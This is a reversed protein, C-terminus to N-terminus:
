RKIRAEQDFRVPWCFWGVRVVRGPARGAAGRITRILGTTNVRENGRSGPRRAHLNSRGVLGFGAADQVKEQIQRSQRCACMSFPPVKATSKPSPLRSRCLMSTRGSAGCLKPTWCRSREGRPPDPGIWINRYHFPLRFSRRAIGKRHVAAANTCRAHSRM